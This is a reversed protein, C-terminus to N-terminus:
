LYSFIPDFIWTTPFKSKSQLKCDTKLIRMRGRYIVCNEDEISRGGQPLTINSHDRVHSYEKALILDLSLCNHPVYILSIFFLLVTMLFWTEELCKDQAHLEIEQSFIGGFTNKSEFGCYSWNIIQLLIDHDITYLLNYM